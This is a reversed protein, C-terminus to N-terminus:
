LIVMNGRKQFTAKVTFVRIELPFKQSFYLLPQLQGVVQFLQSLHPSSAKEHHVPYPAEQLCERTVIQRVGTIVNRKYFTQKEAEDYSDREVIRIAGSHLIERVDRPSM